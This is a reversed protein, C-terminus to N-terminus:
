GGGGGGGGGGGWHNGTKPSCSTTERQLASDALKPTENQRSKEVAVAGLACGQSLGMKMTPLNHLVSTFLCEKPSQVKFCCM